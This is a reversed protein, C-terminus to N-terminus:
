HDATMTLKNYIFYSVALTMLVLGLLLINFTRTATNPLTDKSIPNFANIAADDSVNEDSLDDATTIFTEKNFVAFRSLHDVTATIVMDEVIGGVSEWVKKDENFYYIALEEQNNVQDLKFALTVPHNFHTTNGAETQVTLTYIPSLAKDHHVPTFSTDPSLNITSEGSLDKSHLRVSLKDTEILIQAGKQQLAQVQAKTLTISSTDKLSIVLTGNNELGDIEADIGKLEDAPVENNDDDEDEVETDPAPTVPEDIGPNDDPTETEDDEIPPAKTDSTGIVTEGDHIVFYDVTQGNLFHLRLTVDKNLETENFLRSVNHWEDYVLTLKNNDYDPSFVYGFEKYSTWNQPGAPGSGDSYFAELTILQNGKYDVPIAFDKLSATYDILEAKGVVRLDITWDAGKDFVLTLTGQHGITEPDILSKLLEETFTIAKETATYDHGESLREGELKVSDLTRGNLSLALTRETVAEDLDFYLYDTKATASRTEISKELLRGLAEDYWRYEYRNIHQGNDWLMHVMGRENMYNIVYEFFKLKEGQQITGIHTDFGLLGFEGVVVPTDIASFVQHTKGLYDEVHQISAQEFTTFGAINVSFPWFGYYHVTAIIYDDNQQKIWDATSNLYHEDMSTHMTPIVVPRHPNNGGSSRVITLFTENLENLYGQALADEPNFRPENISEFMVDVPYDKFYEALQEWITEFRARTTEPKKPMDNEIWLWSDHHINIMVKMNRALAFDITQTIRDLYAADITDNTDLRGEFTIPIRISKYGADSVFDILEKTVRPNGWATEDTVDDGAVADYTNGLNWGPQMDKVYAELDTEASVTTTLISTFFLFFIFLRYYFTM